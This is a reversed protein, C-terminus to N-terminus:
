YLNGNEIELISATVIVGFSNGEGLTGIGQKKQDRHAASHWLSPFQEIEIVQSVSHLLISYCKLM